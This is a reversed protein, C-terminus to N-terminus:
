LIPKLNSDFFGADIGLEYPDPHKLYGHKKHAENFADLIDVSVHKGNWERAVEVLWLYDQESTMYDNPLKNVILKILQTTRTMHLTKKIYQM